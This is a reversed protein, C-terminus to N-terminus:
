FMEITGNHVPTHTRRTYVRVLFVRVHVCGIPNFFKHFLASVCTRHKVATQISLHMSNEPTIGDKLLDM